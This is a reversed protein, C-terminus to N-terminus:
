LKMLKKIQDVSFSIFSAQRNNVVLRAAGCLLGTFSTLFVVFYHDLSFYEDSQDFYESDRLQFEVAPQCVLSLVPRRPNRVLINVVCNSLLKPKSSNSPDKKM